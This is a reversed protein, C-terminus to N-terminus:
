KKSQEIKQYENILPSQALQANIVLTFPSGDELKGSITEKLNVNDGARVLTFQLSGESSAYNVNITTDTITGFAKGDIMIKNGVIEFDQDSFGFEYGGCIATYGTIAGKGGGFDLSLKVTECAGQERKSSIVYNGQGEWTGAFNASLKEMNVPTDKNDSGCGALSLITVALILINKM